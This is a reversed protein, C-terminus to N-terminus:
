DRSSEGNKKTAEKVSLSFSLSLPPPTSYIHISQSLHNDKEPYPSGTLLAKKKKKKLRDPLSIEHLIKLIANAVM